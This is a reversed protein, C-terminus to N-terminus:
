NKFGSVLPYRWDLGFSKHHIHIGIPAQKRKYENQKILKVMKNVTNADFGLEIIEALSKEQDIYLALIADLVDYAPLSDQDTQNPALEATPARELTRTPIVPSLQNRYHALRYVLTKPIDKLIALAGSMDGYLTSYGVALESRNGTSLVLHGLQNSLAMLIVSRCRSQINQAPLDYPKFEPGLSQMFSNFLPEISITQHAVALNKVLLDADEKSITATYQSPMFVAAVNEKGLADVAIALTLASDIGGSVGILAGTFNNKHLYDRVGLVLCDYIRQEENPITYPHSSVTISTNSIQLDVPLLSEAFFGALQVLEGNQDVVMSGGDFVLEDQGGVCNTYVIAANISQARKTLLAHRRQHKDVEFPSANPSLILRAGQTGLQQTPSAHWIDECILVGIPIHNVEFPESPKGASFYRCEDFVGYNPLYQKDYRKLIAGNYIVSCSNFLGEPTRHPHGVLCYINKVSKKFVNLAEEAADIFSPRLLLDGPSYGTISLEPFVIMDAQYKEKATNAAQILKALNGDIDGVKLNLQALVIRLNNVM